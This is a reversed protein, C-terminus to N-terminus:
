VYFMYIFLYIFSPLFMVVFYPAIKCDVAMNVSKEEWMEILINNSELIYDKSSHWSCVNRCEGADIIKTKIKLVIIKFTISKLFALDDEDVRVHRLSLSALGIELWWHQEPPLHMHYNVNSEPNSNAGRYVAMINDARQMNYSHTNSQM